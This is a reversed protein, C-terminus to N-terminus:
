GGMQWTKIAELPYVLMLVNLTLNDRIVAAVAIEMALALAATVAAPLRWALFFGAMMAGIDALSNVVSDGYYDLAVTTERYRRIIADTNEVVEWAGEAVVALLLAWGFPFRRGTLRGLGWAGAYFLMGHIIHSPTYWDTLHQSNESSLVVGHWLKITGCTCWPVRGMGLLIAAVLAAMLAIGLVTV